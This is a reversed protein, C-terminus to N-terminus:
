LCIKSLGVEKGKKSKFVLGGGEEKAEGQAPEEVIAKGEEIEEGFFGPKFTAVTSYGDLSVVILHRAGQWAM